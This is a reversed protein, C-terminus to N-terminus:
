KGELYDFVHSTPKSFAGQAVLDATKAAIDRQRLREILEPSAPVPAVLIPPQTFATEVVIAIDPHIATEEFETVPTYVNERGLLLNVLQRNDLDDLPLIEGDANIARRSLKGCMRIVIQRAESEGYGVGIYPAPQRKAVTTKRRQCKAAPVAKRQSAQKIEDETMRRPTSAREIRIAVSKGQVIARQGEAHGTEDFAMVRGDVLVHTPYGAYDKSREGPAPLDALAEVPCDEIDRDRVVNLKREHRSYAARPIDTEAEVKWWPDPHGEVANIRREVIATTYNQKWSDNPMESPTNDLLAARWAQLQTHFQALKARDVATEVTALLANIDDATCDPDPYALASLLLPDAQDIGLEVKLRPYVVLAMFNDIIQQQDLVHYRKTRDPTESSPTGMRGSHDAWEDPEREPTEDENISQSTNLTPALARLAIQAIDGEPPSKLPADTIQRGFHDRPFFITGMRASHACVSLFVSAMGYSMFVRYASREPIGTAAAFEPMTFADPMEIAARAARCISKASKPFFHYIAREIARTFTAM